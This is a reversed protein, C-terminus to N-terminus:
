GSVQAKYYANLEQFQVLTAPDHEGGSALRNVFIGFVRNGDKDFFAVQRSVGGERSPEEIVYIAEINKPQFHGSLGDMSNLNYFGQGYSGKPIKSHVEIVTGAVITIFLPNEWTTLKDWVEDFKDADIPVRYKALLAATVADKSESTAEVLWEVSHGAHKKMAEDLSLTQARAVAPLILMAGILAYRLSTKLVTSM